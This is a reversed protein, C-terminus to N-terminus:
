LIYVNIFFWNYYRENIVEKWFTTWRSFWVFHIYWFCSTYSWSISGYITNSYWVYFDVVKRFTEEVEKDSMNKLDKLDEVDASSREYLTKLILKKKKISLRLLKRKTKEIKNEKM